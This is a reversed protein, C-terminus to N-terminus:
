RFGGALLSRSSCSDALELGGVGAAPSNVAAVASAEIGTAEEAAALEEFAM